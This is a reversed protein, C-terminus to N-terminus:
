EHQTKDLLSRLKEVARSWIKRANTETVEVQQSIEAFSLSDRHRLTIVQKQLETLQEIAQLLETDLENQAMVSSPSHGNHQIASLDTVMVERDIDRSQRVCYKREQDLLNNRLIANLWARFQEETQGRFSRFSECAELMTEQVIDSPACKGTLELQLNAHAIHLLYEWYSDCLAAVASEEGSIAQQILQNSDFSNQM